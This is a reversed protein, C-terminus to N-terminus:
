RTNNYENRTFLGAYFCGDAISAAEIRIAVKHKDALRHM